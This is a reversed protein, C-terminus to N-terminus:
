SELTFATECLSLLPLDFASGVVTLLSSVPWWSQFGCVSLSAEIKVTFSRRRLFAEELAATGSPSTSSEEVLM